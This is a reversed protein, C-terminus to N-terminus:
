PTLDTGSILRLLHLYGNGTLLEIVTVTAFGIMAFRGNWIEASPTFGWSWHLIPEHIQEQSDQYTNRLNTDSLHPDNLIPKCTPQESNEDVNSTLSETERIQEQSDQHTDRLNTDSLNPDKLIPRYIPQESNESLDSTLGEPLNLSDNKLPM